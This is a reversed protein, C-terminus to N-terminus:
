FSVVALRIAAILVITGFLLELKRPSAKKSGYRSGIYAGILCVLGFGFLRFWEVPGGASVHAAFAGASVMAIYLATTAATTKIDALGLVLIVPGLIIGGGMGVMGSVVGIVVGLAFTFVQTVRRHGEGTPKPKTGTLMKLAILFLTIALLKGFATTTIPIRAGIAGGIVGGIVPPLVFGASFYGAKHYNRFAISAVLINLGWALPRLVDPDCSYFTLVALYGTGGGLGIAAYGVAILFVAITILWDALM